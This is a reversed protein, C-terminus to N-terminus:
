GRGRDTSNTGAPPPAIRHNSQHSGACTADGTPEALVSPLTQEPVEVVSGQPLSIGPLRLGTARRRRQGSSDEDPPADAQPPEPHSRGAVAGRTGPVRDQM